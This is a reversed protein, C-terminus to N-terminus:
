FFSSHFFRQTNSKVPGKISTSNLPIKGGQVLQISTTGKCTAKEDGRNESVLHQRHIEGSASNQLTNQNVLTISHEIMERDTVPDIKELKIAQDQEEEFGVNM